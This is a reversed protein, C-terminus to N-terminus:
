AHRSVARVVEWAIFASYAALLIGGEWRQVNLGRLLIPMLVLSFGLMVPLQVQTVESSVPLPIVCATTALVMVVNFINSGIVNGLAIDSEGKRAAALSAALEPLSTGVAVITLGIVLPSIGLRAAVKSASDVMLEAGGVLGALGVLALAAIGLPPFRQVIRSSPPIAEVIEAQVEHSEKQGTWFMLILFLPFIALLLAGEMRDILGDNAFIWLLVSITLMLPYEVKLLRAHATLPRLIAASSLILGINAINSGVVNGVALDTSQNIAAALNVVLEPTSTGFGVLTLGIIFPRVGFRRAIEVAARIFVEAGGCLLTLGASFVLLNEIM